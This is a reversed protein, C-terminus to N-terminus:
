LLLVPDEIEYKLLVLRGIHHSACMWASVTKTKFGAQVARMTKKRGHRVEDKCFTGNSDVHERAM